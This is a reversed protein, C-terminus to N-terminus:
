IYSGSSGGTGYPMSQNGMALQAEQWANDNQAARMVPMMLIVHSAARLSFM